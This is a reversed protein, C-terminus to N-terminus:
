HLEKGCESCYKADLESPHGCNSCYHGSDSLGEKLGQGVVRMKNRLLDEDLKTINARYAFATLIVGVFIVPMAVFGVWFYEPGESSTSTFLDYFYFALGAIGILFIFPGIFKM